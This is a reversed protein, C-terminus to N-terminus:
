KAMDPSYGLSILKVLNEENVDDDADMAESEKFLYLATYNAKGITIKPKSRNM